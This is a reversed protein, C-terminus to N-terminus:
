PLDQHPSLSHNYPGYPTYPNSKHVANGTDPPYRKIEKSPQTGAFQNHTYTTATSTPTTYTTVNTPLVYLNKRPRTVDTIKYELSCETAFIPKRCESCMMSLREFYFGSDLGVNKLCHPCKRPRSM